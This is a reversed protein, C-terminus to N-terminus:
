EDLEMCQGKRWFSTAAGNHASGWGHISPSCGAGFLPQCVPQVQCVSAVAGGSGDVSMLRCGRFGTALRNPVRGGCRVLPTEVGPVRHRIVCEKVESWAGRAGGASDVEEGPRSEGHARAVRLCQPNPMTHGASWAAAAARQIMAWGLVAGARGAGRAVGGRRDRSIDSGDGQRELLYTDLCLAAFDKSKM